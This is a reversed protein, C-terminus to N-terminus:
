LFVKPVNQRNEPCNFKINIFYFPCLYLYSLLFTLIPPITNSCNNFCPTRGFFRFIKWISMKLQEIPTILYKIIKKTLLNSRLTSQCRQFNFSGSIILLM